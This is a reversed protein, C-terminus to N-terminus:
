LNPHRPFKVYPLRAGRVVLRDCRRDVPAEFGASGNSAIYDDQDIGDGSIGIAGVLVGNKFLPVSGAFIQIGNGLGAVPTCARTNDVQGSAGFVSLLRVIEGKVLDLQLGTNFVSWDAFPRSFPGNPNGDIGDPYFPRSLFGNGRDSFAFSGDLGLGDGHAANVYPGFGAATLAAGARASSFFAATRAKQASVDVGFIPADDTRFFGLITGEADVVTISVRANSGLPRRIAARTFLTAQAAQTVIKEVDQATLGNAQAAGHFPFRRNAGEDVLYYGPVGGVTARQFRSPGTDKAAVLVTGNVSGLPVPAVDLPSAVEVFPLRIGNVLIETARIEAPAEYGKSAAVAVREEPFEQPEEALPDRDLTYVGDGEIGIGGVPVGNKYLPVAGPDASLGLPLFGSTAARPVTVDTCPLSSFQVGFLPGGGQREVTPPFHEQIIFGATRPTFANGTTEFFSATGAKSIAAFLSPVDCGDLGTASLAAPACAVDAAKGRLRTKEPADKMRFAGLVNAERDTVVITAKLGERLAAAVGRGLLTEVDARTLSQAADVAPRPATPFKDLRPARERHSEQGWAALPRGALLGIM